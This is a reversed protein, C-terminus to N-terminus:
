VQGMCFNNSLSKNHFEEVNEEDYMFMREPKEANFEHGTRWNRSVPNRQKETILLDGDLTNVNAFILISKNRFFSSNYKVSQIIDDSPHFLLLLLNTEQNWWFLM